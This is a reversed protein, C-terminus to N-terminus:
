LIRKTVDPKPGGVLSMFHWVKQQFNASFHGMWVKSMLKYCKPKNSNDNAESSDECAINDSFWTYMAYWIDNKTSVLSRNNAEKPWVRWTKM